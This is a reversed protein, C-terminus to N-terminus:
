NYNKNLNLHIRGESHVETNYFEELWEKNEEEFARDLEDYWENLSQVTQKTYIEDM